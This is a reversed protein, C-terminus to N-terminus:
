GNLRLKLQILYKFINLDSSCNQNEHWLFYHLDKKPNDKYYVDTKNRKEDYCDWAKSWYHNIQISPNSEDTKLFTGPGMTARHFINIPHVRRNKGHFSVAVTPCHHCSSDFSIIDYDTNILCKGCHYLGKWSVTYQEIVLKSYDHHLLGSTGFMKWYIQIVPYNEYDKIWEKLTLHSNPCIYEDIDIFSVWQTEHRYTMYFSEYARAQAHNYPFDILTVTQNTLYPQLVDKYNDSSNNNYLYFHEFGIMRHFEIWERLFPSEDKFIACIAFKYKKDYKPPPLERILTRLIIEGRYLEFKKWSRIKDKIRQFM